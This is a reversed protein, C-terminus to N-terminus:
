SELAALQARMAKIAMERNAEGPVLIVGGQGLKDLSERVVEASEMWMADPVLATDFDQMADRGHFETRTYGPCLCQVVIGSDKVELQLSESFYNLFVKSSGYIVASAIPIFAVVSSLNIIWGRGRERMFPIAARCLAMSADVHLSVMKQQPALEQEDFNGLTSFGANNVLYDVPGQQRLMEITRTLGEITTLDVALTHVETSGALEEALATLAQERRGVAIIVDCREALQRCYEAGLGASAGTVLATTKDEAM